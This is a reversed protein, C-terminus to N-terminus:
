EDLMIRGSAKKFSVFGYYIFGLMIVAELLFCIIAVTFSYRGFIEDSQLENVFKHLKAIGLLNDCVLYYFAMLGLLLSAWVKKKWCFFAGLLWLAAKFASSPPLDTAIVPGVEIIGVFIAMIAVTKNTFIKSLRITM